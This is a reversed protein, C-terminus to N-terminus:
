QDSAKTLFPNPSSQVAYVEQVQYPRVNAGNFCRFYSFNKRWEAYCFNNTEDCLGNDVYLLYCEGDELQSVDIM